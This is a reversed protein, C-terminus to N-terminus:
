LISKVQLHRKLVCAIDYIIHVNLGNSKTEDLIRDLLLVAYGLSFIFIKLLQTNHINM